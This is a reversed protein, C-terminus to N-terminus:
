GCYSFDDPKGVQAHDALNAPASMESVMESNAALRPVPERPPLDEPPGYRATASYGGEAPPNLMMRQRLLGGGTDVPAPPASVDGIASLRRVTGDGQQPANVMQRQAVLGGDPAGEDVASLKVRQRMTPDDPQNM